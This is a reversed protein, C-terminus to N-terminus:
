VADLRLQFPLIWGPWLTENPNWTLLFPPAPSTGTTVPATQERTALEETPTELLLDETLETISDDLLTGRDDLLIELLAGLEVTLPWCHLQYPM